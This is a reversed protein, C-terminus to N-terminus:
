LTSIRVKANDIIALKIHTAASARRRRLLEKSTKTRQRKV